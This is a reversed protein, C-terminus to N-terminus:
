TVTIYGKDLAIQIDPSGGNLKRAANLFDSIAMGDQFLAFIEARRTGKRVPLEDGVVHITHGTFKHRVSGSVEPKPVKTGKKIKPSRSPKRTISKGSTSTNSINEISQATDLIVGVKRREKL